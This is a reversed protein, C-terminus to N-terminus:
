FAFLSLAIAMGCFLSNRSAALAPHTTARMGTGPCYRGTCLPIFFPAPGRELPGAREMGFWGSM